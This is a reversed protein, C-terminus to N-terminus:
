ENIPGIWAKRIKLQKETAMSSPKLLFKQSVLVPEVKAKLKKKKLKGEPTRRLVEVKLTSGAKANKIFSTIVDKGNDVTLKKKNFKVLLDGQQYGLAKGFDDMRDTEAVILGQTAPDYGITVGGFTIAKGEQKEVYDLGVLDFYDKYPIPDKGSVYKKLFEGIPQYTLKTIEDFLEEDKFSKDKGYTKALDRMLDQIGYKGDSLSRLKIDICLGILAGKQYVNGYQSNYQGLCEKSMVTMPLDDKFEESAYLKERIKDIYGPLDILGYKVQMHGASYETVGEYMWLHESMNGKQFDFNGIEESHINLPTVIHFFEHSAVDRITQAINDPAMEPLFYLSSYSHELAGSAGSGGDHDTLYVLFSYKDVPLKGGLYKCQADLMQKIKGAVFKGTVKKTPSYVSILVKAGGVNIMGTDPLCYMIPTDVLRIYNPSLFIDTNSPKLVETSRDMSTSGYFNQPYRIQINFPSFKLGEFYGFFGHGNIVFNKGAEINTGGPEFVFKGKLSSDWTDEVVYRIKKLSKANKITWTNSDIKAAKMEKGENDIAHFESVFRGFDYLEYTGPVIKPFYFNIEEANIKPAALEVNLKDDVVNTLDMSYYYTGPDRQAFLQFAFLICILLLAPSKYKYGIHM